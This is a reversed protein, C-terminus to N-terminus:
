SKWHRLIAEVTRESLSTISQTEMTRVYTDLRDQLPDVFRSPLGKVGLMAGYAHGIPGGTCDNDQGAMVLITMARAFDNGAFHLAVVEAAMNYYAHVWNYMRFREECKELAEPYTQCSRCAERAFDLVTYFESDRPIASIAKNLIVRMDTEVYAMSVILANFVEALIGNNHHSIQGDRWALQAALAPRGPAIAGCIAARMAAGIMERYPNALIGSEPPYIGNRMHRLAIDEATYAFPILGVWQDGIDASTMAYGKQEFARLLALEFTIDDNMTEPPKVYGDIEGFVEFLRSSKFGEVATGLASGIIEGLWGAHTREFLEDRAPLSYAPYEPLVANQRYQEFSEYITHSWYPHDPIIPAERLAKFVRANIVQVDILRNEQIARLAEPVLKEAESVDRGMNATSSIAGLMKSYPAKSEPLPKNWWDKGTVLMQRAEELLKGELLNDWQILDTRERVPIAACFLDYDYEWARKM